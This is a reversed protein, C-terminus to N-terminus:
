ADALPMVVTRYEGCRMVLRDRVVDVEVEPEAEAPLGDLWATVYSPNLLLSQLEAPRLASCTANSSGYESSKGSATVGSTSFTLRVGRSTESAVVAAARMAAVFEDRNFVAADEGTTADAKKYNPFSSSPSRALLTYGGITAEVGAKGYRFQLESEDGGIAALRALAAAASATLLMGGEDVALDHEVTAVALRHGDTAVFRGHEGEIEVLVLDLGAHARSAVTLVSTLARLAQDAPLSLGAKTDALEWAPFDEVDGSPLLWKSGGCRVGCTTEKPTLVIEGNPPCLNVIALLRSHPLTCDIGCPLAAEILLEGNTAAIGDQTLRVSAMAPHPGRAAVAPSLALLATKLERVTLRTGTREATATTMVLNREEYHREL